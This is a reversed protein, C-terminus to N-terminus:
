LEAQQRAILLFFCRGIPKWRNLDKSIHRHDEEAQNPQDEM